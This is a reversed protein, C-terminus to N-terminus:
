RRWWGRDAGPSANNWMHEAAVDVFETYSLDEGPRTPSNGIFCHPRRWGYEFTAEAPPNSTSDLFDQLLYVAENLYYSDM